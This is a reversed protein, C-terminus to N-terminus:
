ITVVPPQNDTVDGPLELEGAEKEKNKEGTKKENEEESNKKKDPKKPPNYVKGEKGEPWWAPFYKFEDWSKKNSNSSNKEELLWGRKFYEAAATRNGTLEVFLGAYEKMLEGIKWKASAKDRESAKNGVMKYRDIRMQYRKKLDSANGAMYADNCVTKSIDSFGSM